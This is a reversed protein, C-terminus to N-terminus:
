SAVYCHRHDRVESNTSLAEHRVGPYACGKDRAILAAKQTTKVLRRSQGADLPVSKGNLVVPLLDADCALRRVAKPSLPCGSSLTATGIGDVLMNLDLTVTLRARAGGKPNASRHVIESFADGHRERVSRPDPLDLSLKRPKGFKFLLQELLDGTEPDVQGVFKLSGDRTRRCTLSNMPQPAEEGPEKGDPDLRQLLIAGHKRVVGPNVSKATEGLTTEVLERAADPVDKLTDAVADIHEGDLLGEHLATRVTPLPAPTLHGTPTLTEAVAASRTVLKSGLRPAVRLVEILLTRTSPYGALAAIGQRELEAVTDLRQAELLRIQRSIDKLTAILEPGASAEYQSEDFPKRGRSV